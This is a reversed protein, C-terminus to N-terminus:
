LNFICIFVKFTVEHIRKVFSSHFKGAMFIGGSRM